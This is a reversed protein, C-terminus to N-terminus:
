NYFVLTGDADVLFIPTALYSALQRMLILEVPPYDV